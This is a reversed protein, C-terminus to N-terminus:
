DTTQLIRNSYFTLWRPNDRLWRIMRALGDCLSTEAIWGLDDRLASPDGFWVDTDWARRPMNGWEPAARVDLLSRTLEVIQALSNQTGTCVNYIAGPSATQHSALLILADVADDVYVFDRAIEPSVLPPLKNSLAHVILTPILRTPEEYPGYVSYLRATVANLGLKRATFQCYHTAAAKSIAYHSNPDVRDDERAAGSKYGYESSSGTQVFSEAGCEISADLMNASGILNTAVMQEFGTQNSYAGYASLHFVWEPKASRLCRTVSERNTIDAISISCDKTIEEIRWTQHRDRLLLHVEHQDRLLRRALNAGVFGSAGTLLIRKM